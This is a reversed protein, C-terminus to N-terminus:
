PKEIEEHYADIVFAALYEAVTMGKPTQDLLWHGAGPAQAELIHVTSSITGGKVYNPANNAQMRRALSTTM